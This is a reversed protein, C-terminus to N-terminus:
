ADSTEKSKVVKKKPPDLDDAQKRLKAAEKYLADAKSRLSSASDPETSIPTVPAESVDDAKTVKEEKMFPKIDNGIFMALDDVAVNKQEAILTNLESLIIETTTNPTMIVDTTPVKALRGDQHLAALIARGDTFYRIGMIEGLENSDQAQDSEVLTM